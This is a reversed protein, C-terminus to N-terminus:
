TAFVGGQVLAARLAPALSAAYTATLHSEDRKVIISNVVADCRPLRPCAMEDADISVVLGEASLRRYILETPSAAVPSRYACAEPAAGTSLCRIPNIPAIPLPEIVVITRGPASVDAITDRALREFAEAFGIAPPRVIGAGPVILPTVLDPDDYAQHVFVIVDPDLEPVLRDYWYQQHQACREISGQGFLVRVGRPWPCLSQTAITLELSDREAISVLTPIWMRANSDGILLVRARSGQVLVCESIRRAMCDPADPIDDRAVKWDLLRRAGPTGAENRNAPTITSSGPDLFAPAVLLGGVLSLTLGGVIVAPSYRDLRRSRRIPRELAVFSLAALAVSGGGSLAFLAAPGLDWRLAALVVIPWHWLYIGYSIRGIAVMPASGLLRATPGQADAVIARIAITTIVATLIGRSVPAVDVISTTLVIMAIMAAPAILAIAAAIGRRSRGSHQRESGQAGASRNTRRVMSMGPQAYLALAAGLLLQYARTHSAYYSRDADSRAVFCALAASAAALTAAASALAVGRRSRSVARTALCAAWMALPWLLYFQEEIALSWFHLVPSQDVASAFYDTAQQAFRWNAYYLFSGRVGPLADLREAPTATAAYAIVTVVLAVLAAPLIRRARRAYFRSWRIRGHVAIDRRLSATVLYGSLVFFVDVGIFGGSFSGFGAHFVVVAGVAIARLGDLARVEHTTPPDTTPPSATPALVETAM